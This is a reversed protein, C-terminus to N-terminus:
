HYYFKSSFFFPPPVDVDRILYKQYNKLVNWTRVLVHTHDILFFLFRKKFGVKRVSGGMIFLFYKTASLICFSCCFTQSTRGCHALFPCVASYPIAPYIRSPYYLLLRCGKPVLALHLSVRTGFPHM